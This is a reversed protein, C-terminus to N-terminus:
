PGSKPAGKVKLITEHKGSCPTRVRGEPKRTTRCLEWHSEGARYAGSLIFLGPM